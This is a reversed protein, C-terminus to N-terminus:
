LCFTSLDEIKIKQMKFPRGAVFCLMSFHFGEKAKAKARADGEGASRGQSSMQMYNHQVSGVSRAANVTATLGDVVAAVADNPWGGVGSPADEDRVYCTAGASQTM